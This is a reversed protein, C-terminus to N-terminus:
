KNLFFLYCFVKWFLSFLLFRFVFLFSSFIVSLINDKNNAVFNNKKKETKIEGSFQENILFIAQFTIM